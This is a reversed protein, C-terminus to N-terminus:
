SLLFILILSAPKARTAPISLNRSTTSHYRYHYPVIISISSPALSPPRLYHSPFNRRCHYILEPHKLHYISINSTFFYFLPHHYILFSFPPPHYIPYKSNNKGRYQYVTNVISYQIVRDFAKVNAFLSTRFDFITKPFIPRYETTRSTLYHTRNPFHDRRYPSSDNPFSACEM